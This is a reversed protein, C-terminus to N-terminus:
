EKSLYTKFPWEDWIHVNNQALYEINGTGKLVVITRTRCLQFVAKPPLLRSGM